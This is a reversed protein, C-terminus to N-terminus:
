PFPLTDMFTVMQFHAVLLRLCLAFVFYMPLAVAALVLSWEITMQGRADGGLRGTM